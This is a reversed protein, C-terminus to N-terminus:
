KIRFKMCKENAMWVELVDNIALPVSTFPCGTFLLDGTKITFYKSLYAILEEISFLMDSTNGYSIETNNKILKLDLSNINEVKDLPYFPSIALSNEFVSSVDWPLGQCMCKEQLKKDFINVGLAIEHFYTPAFTEDIYKGLKDIRIVLEVQAHIEEAFEPIFFPRNNSLLSTDPKMYFLPHKIDPFTSATHRYNNYFCSIKM